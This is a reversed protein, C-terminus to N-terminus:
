TCHKLVSFLIHGTDGIIYLWVPVMASSLVPIHMHIHTGTANMKSLHVKYDSGTHKLGCPKPTIHTHMYTIPGSCTLVLYQSCHLM